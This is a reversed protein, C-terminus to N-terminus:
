LKIRKTQEKRAEQFWAEDTQTWNKKTEFRANLENVREREKREREYKMYALEQEEPSLKAFDEAEKKGAAIAQLEDVRNKASKEILAREEIVLDAKHLEQDEYAKQLEVDSMKTIEEASPCIYTM